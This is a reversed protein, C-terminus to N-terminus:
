QSQQMNKAIVRLRNYEQKKMNYVETAMNFKADRNGVNSLSIYKAFFYDFFNQYCFAVGHPRTLKTKNYLM